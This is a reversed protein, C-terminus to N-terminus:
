PVPGTHEAEWPSPDAVAVVQHLYTDQFNHFSQIGYVPICALM